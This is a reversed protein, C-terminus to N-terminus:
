QSNFRGFEAFQQGGKVQLNWPLSTTLLYAEELEVSTDGNQDLKFVVNGVGKFYPDVAGDFVVEANPISFGRQRPDHDGREIEDVDRQTSWGADALVDFSVNMYASGAGLLRIPASPSWGAQPAPAEVPPPATAMVTPIATPTPSPASLKDILEEQKRMREQL